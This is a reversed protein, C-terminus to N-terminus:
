ASSVEAFGQAALLAILEDPADASLSDVGFGVLRRVVDASIPRGLGWAHVHLGSDHAKDCLERSVWRWRVHLGLTGRVARAPALPDVLAPGDSLLASRASPELALLRAISPHDFSIFLTRELLRRSRVTKLVAPVLEDDRPEGSGPVPQKLELMLGVTRPAAWGLLEDLSPVREGAFAAAFWSGADLAQIEALTHERVRGAGTTTRELTEDHIVVPVGDATRQVDFEVLDVGCRVGVEMAALTNEPALALAGRHGVVRLPGGPRRLYPSAMRDAV